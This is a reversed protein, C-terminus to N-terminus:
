APLPLFLLMKLAQALCKDNMNKCGDAFVHINQQHSPTIAFASKTTVKMVDAETTTFVVYSQIHATLM